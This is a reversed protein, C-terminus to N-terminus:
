LQVRYRRGETLIKPAMGTLGQLLECLAVCFTQHETWVGGNGSPAARRGRDVYKSSNPTDKGKLANVLVAAM